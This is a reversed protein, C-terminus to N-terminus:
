TSYQQHEPTQQLSEHFAILRQTILANIHEKLMEFILMNNEYIAKEVFYNKETESYIKDKV